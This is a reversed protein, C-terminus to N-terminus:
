ALQKLQTHTEEIMEASIRRLDSECVYAGLMKAQSQLFDQLMKISQERAFAENFFKYNDFGGWSKKAIIEATNGNWRVLTIGNLFAASYGEGIDYLVALRSSIRIAKYYLNGAASQYGQSLFVNKAANYTVSSNALIPLAKQTIISLSTNM